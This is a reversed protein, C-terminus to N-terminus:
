KTINAFDELQGSIVNETSLYFPQGVESIQSM